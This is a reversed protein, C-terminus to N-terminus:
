AQRRRARGLHRDAHPLTDALGSHEAQAQLRALVDDLMAVEHASLAGLVQRNIAVVQPLLATHLRTGAETLALLASRGDGPGPNRSILNKALLSTVAKSTRARDLLAREALQSSRLAGHQALMAIVRWERRTIDHGGECLRIVPAGAVALLRYLRYLLLDDIGQPHSLRPASM